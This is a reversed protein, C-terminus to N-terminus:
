SDVLNTQHFENEKKEKKPIPGNKIWYRILKSVDGDFYLRARTKLM